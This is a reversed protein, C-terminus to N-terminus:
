SVDIELNETIIASTLKKCEKPNCHTRIKHLTRNFKM